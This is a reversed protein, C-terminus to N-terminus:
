VTYGKRDCFQEFSEGKHPGAHLSDNAWECGYCKEHGSRKAGNVRPAPTVDVWMGCQPCVGWRSEHVQVTITTVRESFPGAAERRVERMVAM